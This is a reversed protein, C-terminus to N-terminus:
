VKHNYEAEKKDEETLYGRDGLDSLRGVTNEYVSKFGYEVTTSVGIVKIMFNYGFNYKFNGRIQNKVIRYSRWIQNIHTLYPFNTATHNKFYVAQEASSFVLFWEPYTLFTQDPPRRDKLPTKISDANVLWRKDIVLGKGAPSTTSKIGKCSFILMSSILSFFTLIYLRKM